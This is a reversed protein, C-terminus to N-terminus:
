IMSCGNLKANLKAQHLTSHSNMKMTSERHPIMVRTHEFTKGMFMRHFSFDLEGTPCAPRRKLNDKRAHLAPKRLITDYVNITLFFPHVLSDKPTFSFICTKWVFSFCRHSSGANDKKCVIDFYDPLFSLAPNDDSIIGNFWREWTLSYLNTSSATEM